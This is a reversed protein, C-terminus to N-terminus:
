PAALCLKFFWYLLATVDALSPLPPGSLVVFGCTPSVFPRSLGVPCRFCLVLLLCPCFGPLLWDRAPAPGLSCRVVCPSRRSATVACPRPPAVPPVFLTPRVVGCRPPIASWLCFCGCLAVVSRWGDVPGTLRLTRAWCRAGLAVLDCVGFLSLTLASRFGLLLLLVRLPFLLPLGSPFLALCPQVLARLSPSVVPSRLARFFFSPRLARDHTPLVCPVGFRPVGVTAWPVLCPHPTPLTLPADPGSGALRPPM